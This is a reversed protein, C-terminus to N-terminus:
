QVQLVLTGALIRVRGEALAQIQTTLAGYWLRNGGILADYLAWHTILGWANPSAPPFVISADNSAVGTSGVTGIPVVQRAYGNGVVEDGESGPGTSSTFLALYTTLPSAYPVNNLIHNMLAQRLYTSSPM